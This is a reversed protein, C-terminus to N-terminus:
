ASKNAKILENLYEFNFYNIYNVGYKDDAPIGAENGEFEYGTVEGAQNKIPNHIGLRTLSSHNIYLGSALMTTGVACEGGGSRTGMITAYGEKSALFPYANGCSFSYPSCLLYINFDDGYVDELNYVGDGNTDVSIFYRTQANTGQAYSDVYVLNTDSIIALIKMLAILIGGGNTSLDIVVDKVSSHNTKIDNFQRAFYAFTDTKYLDPSDRGTMAFAFQDFNFFAMNGDDSYRISYQDPVYTSSSIAEREESTTAHDLDYQKYAATRNVVLDNHLKLREDWMPAYKKNIVEEHWVVNKTMALSTHGDQLNAVLSNMAEARVSPDESLFDDYFPQNKFYNSMSKIGRTYKLGYLTDFVFLISKRYYKRLYMPMVPYTVTVTQHTTIDEEEVQFSKGIAQVANKRTYFLINLEETSEATEHFRTMGLDYSSSIMFFGNFTNYVSKGASSSFLHDLLALPAFYTRGVKIPDLEFGKFSFTAPVVKSENLTTQELKVGELLVSQDTGGSSAKYSQSISGAYTFRENVFDISAAFLTSDKTTTQGTTTDTTTVQTTITWDVRGGYDKVTSTVDDKLFSSFLESYEKISLYPILPEDVLIRYQTSGVKLEELNFIKMLEVPDSMNATRYVNVTKLLTGKTDGDVVYSWTCASLGFVLPVILLNKHKM